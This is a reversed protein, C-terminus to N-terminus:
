ITLMKNWLYNYDLYFDKDIMKSKSVCEIVTAKKKTVSACSVNHTNSKPNYRNYLFTVINFKYTNSIQATKDWVKIFRNNIELWLKKARQIRRSVTTKYATWTQKWITQLTRSRNWYDNPKWAQLATVFLKFQTISKINDWKLYEFMVTSQFIRMYLTNSKKDFWRFYQNIFIWRKWVKEIAKRDIWKEKMQFYFDKKNITWTKFSCFTRICFDLYASYYNEDLTYLPYYM